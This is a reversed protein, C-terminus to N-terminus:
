TPYCNKHTQDCEDHRNGRLSAVGQTKKDLTPRGALREQRQRRAVAFRVLALRKGTQRCEEGFPRDCVQSDGAQRRTEEENRILRM